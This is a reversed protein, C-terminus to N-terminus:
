NISRHLSVGRENVSCTFDFDAMTAEHTRASPSSVGANNYAIDIRGFVSVCRDIMGKVDAEDAVSGAYLEMQPHLGDSEILTATKKWSKASCTLCSSSKVVM